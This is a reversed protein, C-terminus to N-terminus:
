ARAREGAAAVDDVIEPRGDVVTGIDERDHRDCGRLIFPTLLM